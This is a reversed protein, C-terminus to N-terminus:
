QRRRVKARKAVMVVAALVIVGAAVLAAAHFPSGVIHAALSSYTFESHDGPHAFAPTAVVVGLAMLIVDSKM